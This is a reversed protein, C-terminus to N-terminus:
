RSRVSGRRARVLLRLPTGEFDFRQRLRGELYRLYTDAVIGPHNVFLAITPPRTAVQTAYYIKLRRGRRDAPPAVATEAEEVARNLPGTAIRRAHAADARTVADLIKSVNRRTKASVFLVPAFHVHRLDHQLRRAYDAADDGRVLDWKNVAIVTARGGDAAHRALQQDQDALGQSPDVVLVVVEAGAMARRARGVSYMEVSEHVRSRRRMGATDVLVFTQDERRLVTDIADRTTGPREDVIVRDTGLLANVLSSKGVNPRGVFAVRIAEEAGREEESAPAAEDGKERRPSPSDQDPLGGVVEDLLDGVGTGHHASVPIPDGLGLRHFEFAAAALPPNDTKNAVVLVRVRARRLLRAVAADDPVLGAQADVVLLVLDAERFAVETQLRVQEIIPDRTHAVMGGTDILVFRHGSWEAETYLRDRTIGPTDEVIAVRRGAIRNFLASKGVNPRGVIAVVPLPRM